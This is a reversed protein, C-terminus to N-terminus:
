FERKNKKDVGKLARLKPVNTALKIGM